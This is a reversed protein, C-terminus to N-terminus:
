FVVNVGFNVMRTLGYVGTGSQEPDITDVPYKKWTWLNNGNIFFRASKLSVAKAAAGPLTYGLEMNKLRFFARNFIFFDNPQQSAGESIGLAPYEIKEGNAYREPTWAHLHWGSYFGNKKGVETIGAGSSGILYASSRGIGTFLLSLDFGKYNVVGSLGYSIEPVLPYGMPVQDRVNIVGDGNTDIYKFDGLRPQGGGVDYKPLSALEEETNIYGNGNSYDIMYGFPQGISFGTKRYRYAYDAGYPVEDAYKVKNKNYGMNAKATVSLDNSIIKQYGLEVEFGKNDVVGINAAPTSGIPQGIVVPITQREILIKDRHETYYEMTLSISKFLEIDIGFNQKKAVEWQLNKNGTRGVAIVQGHGIDSYGGSMVYIDDLYLFRGPANMKDNGTLGYSARLKLNTLTPNGYLFSENSVVWGVSYAPFTGFRNNPAFQESGNYGINFEALYRNDYNYTLRGVYGLVNYPLDAGGGWNDRQHTFMATVTHAGFTRDYNASLQYNMYYSTQMSKSLSIADDRNGSTVTYYSTESASKAISASYENFLKTGTLTTGADTDYSIMGRVSLGKTIFDLGWDLAFSSNLATTTSQQYGGRNIFGYLSHDDAPPIIMEGAPVNYGAVTMPGPATPPTAWLDAIIHYVMTEMDGVALAGPSPTNRRQLYTALNLTATLNKAFKYDINGRFNYRNMSFDPDYGLFDKSETKFNGGQGIYGVNLFYTFDDDGGNFNANLRTQPAYKRFFEGTVDRDPYFVRDSGDRYKEIMYPTYPLSETAGPNDNLYAQNRLEAFEWSHIRDTQSLFSQVSYNASISLESKGKEGRRTTILIVGNAGRVGFVATASADKLISVTAVENPDLTAINDRPIGDILILPSSDNLTGLGRLYLNVNDAGPQGSTQLATLGPLRGALSASLNASPSQKLEKTQVTSIAATVSVKKQKGYAVVVVEELTQTDEGLTVVLSQKGSVAIEQATYGIYSFVLVDTDNVQLEFNGDEDTATGHSTGKVLISVGPLTEGDADKVVGTIKRTAKAQQVGTVPAREHRLVQVTAGEGGRMSVDSAKAYPTNIASLMLLLTACLLTLAGNKTQKKFNVNM